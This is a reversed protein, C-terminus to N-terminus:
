RDAYAEAPDVGAEQLLYGWKTGEGPKRAEEIAKGDEDVKPTTSPGQGVVRTPNAAAFLDRQTQLEVELAENLKERATKVTEGDDNVDDIVDLAPTPRKDAAITFKAKVQSKFADPLRSEDIKRHAEDRFDRLEIQRDATARSEANMVERESALAGEVAERLQDQDVLVTTSLAEQVQRFAESVKADIIETIAEVLEDDEAVQTQPAGEDHLAELLQPRETRLYETFEQDSLSDLATMDDGHYISEMLAVVEGGAGEETVWDVSGRDEIGEVLFVREGKHTVPRVGTARASISAHVIRPHTEILTRVDPTPIVKAVVAGQGFGRSVDAPVNPDWSAEVVYGGVDRLSRPLGGAKRRAEETQHDVYMTWGSFKEANQALMDAEYLHRGKGKGVCPRIVHLKVSGDSPDVATGRAPALLATEQLDCPDLRTYQSGTTLTM